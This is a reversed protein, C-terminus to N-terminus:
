AVPGLCPGAMGATLLTIPAQCARSDPSRAQQATCVWLHVSRDAAQLSATGPVCAAVSICPAAEALGLRQAPGQRVELRLQVVGDAVDVTTVNGGDAMLFPRVEDLARDVTELTM